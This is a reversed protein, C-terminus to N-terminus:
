GRYKMLFQRAGRKLKASSPHEKFSSIRDIIRQDGALEKTNGFHTLATLSTAQIDDYDKSDLLIQKAYTQFEDPAISQLASAAIQRAEKTEEKNRLIEEFLPKSDSDAALLRLAEEKAAENPPNRVITRAVPYADSHIDYSLLQLAKEPPVLAKEPEQLGKVLLEQAFGDKERALLGLVRQRLEPDPDAAVSRLAALYDGRCSEFQVVAFSAAQIAQLAALRVSIPESTNQLVKLLSQFQKDNDCVAPAMQAMAALRVKTPKNPSTAIVGASSVSLKHKASAKTKQARKRLRGKTMM